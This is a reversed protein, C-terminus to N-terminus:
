GFTFSFAESGPDPFEVEFQRDEIPARQRILQYRLAAIITGDPFPLKASRYARIATDNGLVAAFRHLDGEEPAVSIPKWDRYGAPIEKVFGPAAECDANGAAPVHMAVIPARTVLVPLLLRARKM